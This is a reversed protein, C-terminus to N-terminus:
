TSAALTKASNIREILASLEALRRIRLAGAPTKKGENTHAEKLAARMGSRMAPRIDNDIRDGVFLINRTTEGVKGAAIRFIETSPKRVHFECSYIQVPFFDLLGLERLHKELSARNVFTNSVIGLKLGMRKLGALTEELGDEIRACRGLPEYWLWAFQEWQELSLRVGLRAGVAQLVELSDFDRGTINSILYKTRLRVLNRLFYWAFRGVPQGYDRLFAHTSKAGELFARTTNVRGFELITDGLDFLVARIEDHAM